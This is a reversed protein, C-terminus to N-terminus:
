LTKNNSERFVRDDDDHLTEHPNLLKIGEQQKGFFSIRSLNIFCFVLMQDLRPPGTTLQQSCQIYVQSPNLQIKIQQGVLKQLSEDTRLDLSIGSFIRRSLSCSFRANISSAKNKAVASFFVRFLFTACLFVCLLFWFIRECNKRAWSSLAFVLFAKKIHKALGNSKKEKWTGAFGGVSLNKLLM